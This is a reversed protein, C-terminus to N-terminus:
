GAASIEQPAPNHQPPLHTQPLHTQAQTNAKRHRNTGKRPMQRHRPNKQSHPQRRLPCSKSCRQPARRSLAGVVQGLVAKARRDEGTEIVGSPSSREVAPYESANPRLEVFFPPLPAPSSPSPSALINAPSHRARASTLDARHTDRFWTHRASAV